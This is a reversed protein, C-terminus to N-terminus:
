KSPEALGQVTGSVLEARIQRLKAKVLRTNEAGLRALLKQGSSRAELDPDAFEYLVKPRALAVPGEIEPAALLHDLIEVLRDNFYRGGYGIEEYARQFQPYYRFYIGTMRRADVAQLANVYPAYRGSSAATSVFTQGQRDVPHQGKIHAIPWLRPPIAAGDLSNLTVVLRQIVRQPVVFSEVPDRGFTERLAGRFAEDPNAAASESSAPEPVREPRTRARADAPPTTEAEPVSPVPYRVQPAIPPPEAVSAENSVSPGEYVADPASPGKNLFYVIAGIAGVGVLVGTWVAKSM